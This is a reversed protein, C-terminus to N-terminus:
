PERFPGNVSVQIPVVRADDTHGFRMKKLLSVMQKKVAPNSEFGSAKISELHGQPMLNFKFVVPEKENKDFLHFYGLKNVITHSQAHWCYHFSGKIRYWSPRKCIDKPLGATNRDNKLETESTFTFSYRIEGEKTLEVKSINEDLEDMDMPKLEAVSNFCIANLLIFINLNLIKM